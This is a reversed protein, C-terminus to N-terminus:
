KKRTAYFIILAVASIAVISLGVVAFGSMGTDVGRNALLAILAGRNAQADAEAQQQNAALLADAGGSSKSANNSSLGSLITGFGSALNSFFASASSKPKTGVGSDDEKGKLLTTGDAGFMTDKTYGHNVMVLKAINKHLQENNKGQKFITNVITTANADKPMDIGAARIASIVASPSKAIINATENLLVTKTLANDKSKVAGNFNFYFDHKAIQM